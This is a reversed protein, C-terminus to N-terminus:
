WKILKQAAKAADIALQEQKNVLDTAAKIQQKRETEIKTLNNRYNQNNKTIESQKNNYAKDLEDWKSDSPGYLRMMKNRIAALEWKLDGDKRAYEATLSDRKAQSNTNIQQIQQNLMNMFETHIKVAAKAGAGGFTSLADGVPDDVKPAGLPQNLLPVGGPRVDLM